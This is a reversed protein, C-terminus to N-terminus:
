TENAPLNKVYLTQDQSCTATYRLIRAIQSIMSRWSGSTMKKCTLGTEMSWTDM